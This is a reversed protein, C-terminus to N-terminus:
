QIVEEKAVEVNEVAAMMVSQSVIKHNSAKVKVKVKAQKEPPKLTPKVEKFRSPSSEPLSLSLSMGAYSESSGESEIKLGEEGSVVNDAINHSGSANSEEDVDMKDIPM